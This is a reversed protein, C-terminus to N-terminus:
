KNSPTNSYKIYDAIRQPIVVNNDCFDCARGDEYRAVPEPNNGFGKCEEGCIVCEFTETM